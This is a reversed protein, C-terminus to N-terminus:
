QTDRIRAPLPKGMSKLLNRNVEILDEIEGKGSLIKMTERHVFGSIGILGAKAEDAVTNNPNALDTAFITWMQLNRSVADVMQTVPPDVADAANELERTIQQIIAIEIDKDGATRQQVQGYAKHALSQM